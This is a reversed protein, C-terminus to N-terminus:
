TQRRIRFVAGDPLGSLLAADGIVRGLPTVPSYARPRDDVSVPTPGFFICFARGAPWYALDGVEMESRADPELEMRLPIEFYFEDGWRIGSAELPLLDWVAEATPCDRLEAELVIDGAEIAIKRM